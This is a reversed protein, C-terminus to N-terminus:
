VSLSVVEADETEPDDVIKKLEEALPTLGLHSDIVGALACTRLQFDHHSWRKGVETFANQFSWATKSEFEEHTPERYEAEWAKLQSSPIAKGRLAEMMLHDADKVTLDTEKYQLIREDQSVFSKAIAGMYKGMLRPLDEWIKKTHKRGVVVSAYFMLNSCLTVHNGAGLQASFDKTSSNRAGVIRSYDGAETELGYLAFSNWRQREEPKRTDINRDLLYERWKIKWGQPVMTDETLCFFADDRIPYHKPGMSVPDPLEEFIDLSNSSVGNGM